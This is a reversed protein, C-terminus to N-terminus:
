YFRAPKSPVLTALLEVCVCFGKRDGLESFAKSGLLKANEVAYCPSCALYLM